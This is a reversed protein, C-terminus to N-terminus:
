PTVTPPDLFFQGSFGVMVLGAQPVVTGDTLVGVVAPAATVPSLSSYGFSVVWTNASPRYGVPLTFISSSDSGSDVVGHIDVIGAERIRFAVAPEGSVNAWSNTFAPEGSAGVYHWGEGRGYSVGPWRRRFAGM